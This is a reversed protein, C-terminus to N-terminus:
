TDGGPDMLRELRSTFATIFIPLIQASGSIWWMLEPLPKRMADYQLSILIFMQKASIRAKGDLLQRCIVKVEEYSEYTDCLNDFFMGAYIGGAIAVVNEDVVGEKNILGMRRQREIVSDDFPSSIRKHIVNKSNM